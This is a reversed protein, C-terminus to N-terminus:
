TAQRLCCVTKATSRGGDAKLHFAQLIIESYCDKAFVAATEYEGFSSFYREGIRAANEGHMVLQQVGDLCIAKGAIDPDAARLGKGCDQRRYQRLQSRQKRSYLDFAENFAVSGKGFRNLLRPDVESNDNTM